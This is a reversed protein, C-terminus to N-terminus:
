VPEPESWFTGAGCCQGFPILKSLQRIHVQSQQSLKLIEIKMASFIGLAPWWVLPLFSYRVYRYTVYSCDKDQVVAHRLLVQKGFVFVFIFDKPIKIKNASKTYLIEIRIRFPYFFFHSRSRWWLLQCKRTHPDPNANIWMWKSKHIQILMFGWESEQILIRM